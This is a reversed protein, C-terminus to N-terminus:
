GVEPRVCILYYLIGGRLYINYRRITQSKYNMLTAITEITDMCENIPIPVRLM